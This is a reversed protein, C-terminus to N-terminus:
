TISHASSPTRYTAPHDYDVVIYHPAEINVKAKGSGSDKVQVVQATITIGFRNNLTVTHGQPTTM